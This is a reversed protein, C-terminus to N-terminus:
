IAQIKEAIRMSVENSIEEIDMDSSISEINMEINIYIVQQTTEPVAPVLMDEPIELPITRPVKRLQDSALSTEINLNKFSESAMEMQAKIDEGISHGFLKDSIKGLFSFKDTIGSIKDKIIGVANSINEKLSVIGDILSQIYEKVAGFKQEFILTLGSIKTKIWSVAEGLDKKLTTILNQFWDIVNAITQILAAFVNIWVGVGAIIVKIFPVFFASFRKWAGLGLLDKFADILNDVAPVVADMFVKKLEDFHFIFAGLVGMVVALVAIFPAFAPAISWVAGLFGYILSGATSIVVSLLQIPISLLYFTMGITTLLPAIGLLLGSFYGITESHEDLFNFFWIIGEGAKELGSLFGKMFSDGSNELFNILAPLVNDVLNQLTTVVNEKNEKWLASLADIVDMIAPLLVPLVAAGINVFLASVAGMVGQVQMGITPLIKMADTMDNISSASGLGFAALMGMSTGISQVSKDWKQFLKISNTVPKMITKQLMRGAMMMGFGVWLFRNGVLGVTKSFSKLNKGIKNFFMMGKAKKILIDFNQGFIQGKYGADKMVSSFMNFQPVTKRAITEATDTYQKRLQGLIFNQDSGASISNKMLSTLNKYQTGLKKMEERYNAADDPSMTKMIDWELFKEPPKINKIGALQKNFFKGAADKAFLTGTDKGTLFKSITIKQGTPLMKDISEGPFLKGIKIDQLNKQYEAAFSKISASASKLGSQLASTIVGINIKIM